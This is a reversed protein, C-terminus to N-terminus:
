PQGGFGHPGFIYLQECRHFRRMRDLDNMVPSRYDVGRRGELRGLLYFELDSPEFLDSGPLPPVQKCDMSHTLEPTILVILEQEGASTRDFAFFRNLVPIDGFLPVRSADTGLNNQVLGAVALTQGERIEVTTEFNRTNLGPVASGAISTGTTVDRTSISAAVNLRIRDKDTIYPTFFLQVGYPIFSTGALNGAANGAVIPVPFSGGAQFKATQGNMATLNPEAWSRAYNLTRLANIALRIQGNDLAVPLNNTLLGATNNAVNLTGSAIATLANPGGNAINGTRQEFVVVGNNNAIAFNMGISRAASRNVEALTVHLTVQQEGPIRLLNVVNPGGIVQYDELGPIGNQTGPDGPRSSAQPPLPIKTPDTKDGKPDYRHPDEGPANARVLRLIQTAEVIDRAQGSVVLKDGVLRLHVVSDPFTCNIEKELGKYVAELRLKEDAAPIVRVLFSIVREKTKETPDDFWFNLVTTGIVKGILTVELGKTGILNYDVLGPDGIQIRRPLEKLVMLRPQGKVLEIINRPDVFREVYRNFEQIDKSSPVPACGLLSSEGLQQLRVQGPRFPEVTKPPPLPELPPEKVPEKAPQKNQVTQVPAPQAYVPQMPAAPPPEPQVVAQMVRPAAPTLRPEPQAVANPLSSPLMAPPPLSPMLTPGAPAQAQVPVIPSTVPSEIILPPAQRVLKDLPKPSNTIKPPPPLDFAVTGHLVDAPMPTTPSYVPGAPPAVPSPPLGQAHVLVVGILLM